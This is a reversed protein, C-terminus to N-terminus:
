KCEEIDLLKLIDNAFVVDDNSCQLCDTPQYDENAKCRECKNSRENCKKVIQKMVCDTCDACRRGVDEPKECIGCMEKYLGYNVPCNKIIYKDSM